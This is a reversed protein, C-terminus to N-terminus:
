LEDNVLVRGEVSVYASGGLTSDASYQRQRKRRLRWRGAQRVVRGQGAKVKRQQTREFVVQSRRRSRGRPERNPEETPLVQVREVEGPLINVCVM